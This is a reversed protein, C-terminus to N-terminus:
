PRDRGPEGLAPCPPRSERAPPILAIVSVSVQQILRLYHGPFDQDFLSMPTSFNIVGTERLQQFDVPYLQALSITKTLQLKRQDTSFYYEDLETIDQNLREAGTLGMTNSTGPTLAATLNASAPQWYNSKIFGPPAEQREFAMQNEALLAVATAQQLFYSYVGQLVGCM